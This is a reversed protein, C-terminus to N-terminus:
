AQLALSPIREGNPLRHSLVIASQLNRIQRGDLEADHFVVVEQDTTVHVDLEIGDAGQELALRFAALSNEHADASAGRHAIVLTL